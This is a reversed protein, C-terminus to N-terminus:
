FGPRDPRAKKTPLKGDAVEARWRMREAKYAQLLGIHRNIDYSWHGARGRSRERRLASLLRLCLRHSSDADDAGLDAMAMPLLRPLMTERRYLRTGEAIVHALSPAVEAIRRSITM